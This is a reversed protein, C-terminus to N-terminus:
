QSIWVIHTFDRISGNELIDDGIRLDSKHTSTALIGYGRYSSLDKDGFRKQFEQITMLDDEPEILELKPVKKM